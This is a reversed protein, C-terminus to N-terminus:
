IADKGHRKGPVLDFVAGDSERPIPFPLGRLFGLTLGEPILKELDESPLAACQRRKLLRDTLEAPIPSEDVEEPGAGAEDFVLTSSGVEALGVRLAHFVNAAENLRAPLLFHGTPQDDGVELADGDM